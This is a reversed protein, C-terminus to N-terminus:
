QTVVAWLRTARAGTTAFAVSVACVVIGPSVWTTASAVIVCLVVILAEGRVGMYRAWDRAITLRSCDRVRM